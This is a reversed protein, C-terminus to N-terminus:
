DEFILVGQIHAMTWEFNHAMTTVAEDVNMFRVVLGQNGSTNCMVPIGRGRGHEGKGTYKRKFHVSYHDSVVTAQNGTPVPQFGAAATERFAPFIYLPQMWLLAGQEKHRFVPLNLLEALTDTGTEKVKNILAIMCHDFDQAALSGASMQAWFEFRQLLFYKIKSDAWEDPVEDFIQAYSVVTGEARAASGDSLITGSSNSEIVTRVALSKQAM